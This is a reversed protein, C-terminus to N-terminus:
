ESEIYYPSSMDDHASNPTHNSVDSEMSRFSFFFVDFVISQTEECIQAFFINPFKWEFFKIKKFMAFSALCQM